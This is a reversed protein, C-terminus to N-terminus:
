SDSLMGLMQQVQASRSKEIREALDLVESNRANETAYQAIEVANSQQAILLNLYTTAFADGDAEDLEALDAKTLTSVGGHEAHLDADGSATVSEGWAKLWGTMEAREDDETSSIAAVLADARGSLDGDGARGTVKATEVERAIMMQLFMVDADNHGTDDGAGSSSVSSSASASATAPDGDSAAHGEHGSSASSTTITIGDLAGCGALLLVTVAALVTAALRIVSLARSVGSAM